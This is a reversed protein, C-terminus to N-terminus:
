KKLTIWTKYCDELFNSLSFLPVSLSSIFVYGCVPISLEKAVRTVAHYRALSEEISCNINSKSFPESALAFVAVEKPVAAMTSEFGQFLNIYCNFEIKGM